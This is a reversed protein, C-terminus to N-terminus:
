KRQIDEKNANIVKDILVAFDEVHCYPRWTDKDYVVLNKQNAIYYTFENVTLDFRMRPSLGFATAFRLITASYNVKSQLSLIYNECEVKNKAYLSLPNLDYNEDASQNDPILGYNSCTSIFIVREVESNNITNLCNKVGDLNIDKSLEPYIKTIPDGVLGALLVVYDVSDLNSSLQNTSRIDGNIFKFNENGQFGEIAFNHNYILSDFVIVNFNLNLFYKAVVTGIYGAGGILMVTKKSKSRM